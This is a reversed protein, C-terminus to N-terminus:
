GLMLEIKERLPELQPHITAISRTVLCICETETRGTRQYLTYGINHHEQEVALAQIHNTAEQITCGFQDAFSNRYDQQQLQSVVWREPALDDGPLILYEPNIERREGRASNIWGNVKADSCDGDLVCLSKMSFGSRIHSVGQSIVNSDSGVDQIEVRLRIQAPLAENILSAAFKDECYIILEPHCEGTMEYMAYRTSPSEIVTHDGGSKKLVLRAQRPLADIFVESHSSCVIQIHKSLCIDVLTQALRKQAQPHLGAEIEEVVLLGGREINELLHLLEIMCCEGGGMNFATYESGSNCRQFSYNKKEQVEATTYKRGMIFSLHRIFGQGLAKTTIKGKPKMFALRVGIMEYAPLIRSLPLYDVQREERKSYRGWRHKTKDFTVSHEYNRKFYRWTVWVNQIIQESHGSVFFDNFTYYTRDTHTRKPGTNGWHVHWGPPSHHALVALALITSKGVGNNGCLATIPYRLPVILARIGRIGTSEKPQEEQAVPHYHDLPPVPAIEISRLYPRELNAPPNEWLQNLGKEKGSLHRGPM